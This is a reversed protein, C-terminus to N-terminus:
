PNYVCVAIETFALYKAFKLEYQIRGQAAALNLLSEDCLGKPLPWWTRNEVVVNGFCNKLLKLHLDTDSLSILPVLYLGGPNLFSCVDQLIKRSHNLGDPGCASPINEYWESKEAIIQSIGAVDNIILDFKYGRWPDLGDGIKINSRDCTLALKNRAAEIAESSIDSAFYHSKPFSESLSFTIDGQGCGLECVSKISETFATKASKIILKTTLNPSFVAMDLKVGRGCLLLKL